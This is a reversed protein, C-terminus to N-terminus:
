QLIVFPSVQTAGDDLTLPALVWTTGDYNGFAKVVTRNTTFYVHESAAIEPGSGEKVLYFRFDILGLDGRNGLTPTRGTWKLPIGFLTPSIGKTADGAIFISNGNADDITIIQPLTSQNAVWVGSGWSDASFAALMAAVDAFDILGAGARVVNVVAPNGVNFVGLPQGVGNGTLFAQDRFQVIGLNLMRRLFNGAVASNRLLKDTVVIHAAFEKPELRVDDLKYDTEPKPGAEAIWQFTLGGLAGLAGQRLAPFHEVADPAETGAPIVTARPMVVEMEPQIMLIDQRWKDPTLLGGEEGVGMSLARQEEPTSAHELAIKMALDTRGERIARVFRGFDVISRQDMQAPAPSGKAREEQDGTAPPPDTRGLQLDRKEKEELQNLVEGQSRLEESLRDSQEHEEATFKGDRDAVTKLLEDLKAKTEAMRERQQKLLSM